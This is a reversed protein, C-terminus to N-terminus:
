SVGRASLLLDGTNGRPGPCRQHKPPPRMRMPVPAAAATKGFQVRWRACDDPGVGPTNDNALSTSSGLNKYCWSSRTRALPTHRISLRRDLTGWKKNKPSALQSVSAAFLGLVDRPHVCANVLPNQCSPKKSIGSRSYGLYSLPPARRSSCTSQRQSYSVRM